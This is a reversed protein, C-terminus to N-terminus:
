QGRQRGSRLMLTLLGAAASSVLMMMFVADYSGRGDFLAAGLWAGLGGCIHHVMTILGTLAGLHRAGFADRVFVVTLPATVLVTLGFVLAFIMVTPMSQDVLIVAFLAVRMLFCLATAATAGIRDASAGALLVGILAALGMYALLRGALLADVGRDQAFAVVHTSVFFDAFGCLAYIVLLLWFQQTRAAEAVSLGNHVSTRIENASGQDVGGGTGAMEPGRSRADRNVAFLVLPVVALHLVGIWGFVAQWGLTQMMPSLVYMMVLQGLAMGALSIANALGARDPFHRTVLVGVPILSALGNGVAYLAGYLVVVHWPASAWALLGSGLAAFALGAALVRTVDMRDALRGAWFMAAASVVQFLAVTGGILSRGSALDAEMPKLALGIAFRSGGGIFLVLAGLLLATWAMWRANISPM